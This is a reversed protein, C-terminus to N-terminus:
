FNDNTPCTRMGTTAAPDRQATRSLSRGFHPPSSPRRLPRLQMSRCIVSRQM